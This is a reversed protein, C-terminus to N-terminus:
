CLSLIEEAWKQPTFEKMFKINNKRIEEMKHPNKLYFNIKEKLEEPTNFIDINEGITFTKEMNHWKTSLIFAGSLLLKYTRVSTGAGNLPAFNLNIKSRNVIENHDEDFVNTYHNFNVYDLYRKREIHSKTQTMDGIFSVDIDREIDLPTNIINDAPQFIYKTNKNLSLGKEIGGEIGCAFGHVRSIKQFLEENFCHPATGDMYWLITKSQKNCEDIVRYNVGNCKSFFVIDPNEDKCVRIIDDDRKTPTKHQKLKNRYDYRIVDCGASKFGKEHTINTSGKKFVGLLLVKM